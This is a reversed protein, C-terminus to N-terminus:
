HGQVPPKHRSRGAVGEKEECLAGSLDFVLQDSPRRHVQQIYTGLDDAMAAGVYGTVIIVTVGEVPHRHSLQSSSVRTGKTRLM